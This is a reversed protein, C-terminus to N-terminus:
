IERKINIIQSEILDKYVKPFINTLKVESFKDFDRYSQSKVSIM